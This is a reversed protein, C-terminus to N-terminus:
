RSLHQIVRSLHGLDSFWLTIQALRYVGLHTNNALVFVMKCIIYDVCVTMWLFIVIKFIGSINQLCTAIKYRTPIQCRPLLQKATTPQWKLTHTFFGDIRKDCSACVSVIRLLSMFYHCFSHCDRRGVLTIDWGPLVVGFHVKEINESLIMHFQLQKNDLHFKFKGTYLWVIHSLNWECWIDLLKYYLPQFTHQHKTHRHEAKETSKNM